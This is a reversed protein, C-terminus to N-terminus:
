GRVCARVCARVKITNNKLTQMEALDADRDYKAKDGILSMAKSGLDEAQELKDGIDEHLQVVSGVFTWGILLQFVWTLPELATETGQPESACHVCCRPRM